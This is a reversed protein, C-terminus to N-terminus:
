TNNILIVISIGYYGVLVGGGERILGGGMKLWLEQVPIESECILGGGGARTLFFM